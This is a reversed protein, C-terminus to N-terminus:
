FEDFSTQPAVPPIGTDFWDLDLGMGFDLGGSVGHASSPQERTYVSKFPQYETEPKESAPTRARKRSNMEKATRSQVEWQRRLLLLFDQSRKANEWSSGMEELARFCASLHQAAHETHDRHYHTVSAFTLLLAASCVIGVAQVNIRRLSFRIEYLQLLKAISVASDMCMMRAHDSGPGQPPFSQVYTKSM